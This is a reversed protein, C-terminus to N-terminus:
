ESIHRLSPLKEKEIIHWTAWVVDVGVFLINMVEICSAELICYLDPPDTIIKKIEDSQITVERQRVYFEAVTECLRKVRFNIHRGHRWSYSLFSYTVNIKTHLAHLVIAREM